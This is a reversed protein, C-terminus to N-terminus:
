RRTPGGGRATQTPMLELQVHAFGREVQIQVPTAQADQALWIDLGGKWYHEGEIHLGRVKFHNTNFTGAPVTLEEVGARQVLVPYVKGDSWIRLRMSGAPQRERILHIGSALDVVGAEEVKDRKNSERGNWRYSSWALATTGNARTEGGYLFYEGRNSEPSTIELETVRGGDNPHSRLEGRGTGPLAIRALRGIFGKLAWRYTLSETAAAPRPFLSVLVVLCLASLASRRHLPNKLM